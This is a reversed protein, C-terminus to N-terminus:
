SYVGKILDQRKQLYWWILGTPHMLLRSKKGKLLILQDRVCLLTPVELESSERVLKFTENVLNFFEISTGGPNVYSSVYLGSSHEVVSCFEKAKQMLHPLNTWSKAVIDYKEANSLCSGNNGGFAYVYEKYKYVGPWKRVFNM